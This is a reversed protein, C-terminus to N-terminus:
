KTKIDSKRLVLFVLSIIWLLISFLLIWEWLAEMTFLFAFLMGPLGIIGYIGLLKLKLFIKM